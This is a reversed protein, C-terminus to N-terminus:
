VNGMVYMASLDPTPSGGQKELTIAFAQANSFSKMKHLGEDGMDIMGADVPKGDVIAWLQYQMGQPPEPLSNVTLYTEKSVPNWYVTAMSAPAIDMGKLRVMKNRPDKIVEMMTRNEALQKDMQEKLENYDASVESLQKQQEAIREKLSRIYFSAVVLLAISAAALYIFFRSSRKKDKEHLPIVRTEQEATMANMVKKKLTAPPTREQTLAYGELALQVQELESKVEPYLAAMREVERCEQESALGLAYSELIGSAIYERTDM